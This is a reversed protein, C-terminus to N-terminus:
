GSWPTSYGVIDDEDRLTSTLRERRKMELQQQKSTYGKPILTPFQALADLIDEPHSKDPFREVQNLLHEQSEHLHLVGFSFWSDLQGIIWEHKSQSTSKEAEKLRATLPPLPYIKKDPQPLSMIDQYKNKQLLRAYDWFWTQAGIAEMSVKMPRWKRYILYVKEAFKELGCNDAWTAVVFVHGDHSVGIVAIAAESPQKADTVRDRHKPDCLEYFRLSKLSVYRIEVKPKPYGDDDLDNIDWERHKYRLLNKGEVTSYMNARVSEMDFVGIGSVRKRLMYQTDWLEQNLKLGELVAPPFRVPFVSKGESDIVPKWWIDWVHKGKSQLNQEFEKIRHVIPNDGHPTGVVMLRDRAQDILLPPAVKTAFRWADESTVESKDSDAGELDDMLILHGHYGEYASEIGGYTIAPPMMPDQMQGWDIIIESKTWGKFNEPIRKMHDEEESGEPGYLWYLFDSRSSKRFIDVIPRFRNIKANDEKQEVLKISHNPVYLAQHIGFGITAISSKFSGRFACILCRRWESMLLVCLEGHLEPELDKFGLIGKCFVFLNKEGAEYYQRRLAPTYKRIHPAEPEFDTKTEPLTL